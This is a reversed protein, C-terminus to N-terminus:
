RVILILVMVAALLATLGIILQGNGGPSSEVWQRMRWRAHRWSMFAM